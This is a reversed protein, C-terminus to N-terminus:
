EEEFYLFRNMGSDDLRKRKESALIDKWTDVLPRYKGM